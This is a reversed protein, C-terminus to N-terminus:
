SIEPLTPERVNPGYFIEEKKWVNSELLRQCPLHWNIFPIPVKDWPGGPKCPNPLSKPTHVTHEHIQLPYFLTADHM